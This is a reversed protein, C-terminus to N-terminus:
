TVEKPWYFPLLRVMRASACAEDRDEEAVMIPVAESSLQGMWRSGSGRSGQLPCTSQIFIEPINTM